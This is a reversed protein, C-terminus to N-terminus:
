ALLVSLSLCFVEQSAAHRFFYPLLKDREFTRGWSLLESSISAFLLSDILVAEWGAETSNIFVSM